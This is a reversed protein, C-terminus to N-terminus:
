KIWYNIFLNQLLKEFLYKSGIKKEPSKRGGWIIYPPLVSFHWGTYLHRWCKLLLYKKIFIQIQPLFKLNLADSLTRWCNKKCWKADALNLFALIQRIGKSEFDDFKVGALIVRWVTHTLYYFNSIVFTTKNTNLQKLHSINKKINTSNNIM